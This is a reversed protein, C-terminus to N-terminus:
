LSGNRHSHHIASRVQEHVELPRNIYLWSAEVAGTGATAFHISGLTLLREYWNLTLFTNQIRSLPCEFVQVNFIGRLRLVRRNTLVYLRCIWQLMAVGVRAAMLVVATQIVTRSHVWALREGWGAGALAVLTLVILWRSSEFLVFWLSPKIALIVIESDDLLHAPVLNALSHGEFTGNDADARAVDSSSLEAPRRMLPAKARRRRTCVDTPSM